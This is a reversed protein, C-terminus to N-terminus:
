QAVVKGINSADVRPDQSRITVKYSGDPMGRSSMGVSVKLGLYQFMHTLRMTAEEAEHWTM